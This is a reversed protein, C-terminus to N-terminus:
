SEIRSRFSPNTGVEVSQVEVEANNQSYEALGATKPRVSSVFGALAGAANYCYYISLVATKVMVVDPHGADSHGVDCVTHESEPQGHTPKSSTLCRM